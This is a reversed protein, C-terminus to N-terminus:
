RGKLNGLRLGTSRARSAEGRENLLYIGSSTGRYVNGDADAVVTVSGLTPITVTVSTPDGYAQWATILWENSATLKRAIVHETKDWTTFEYSPQESGSMYHDYPGPLLDGQRLFNELHSFLAHVRSLAEIQLLWHPPSSEDFSADFGGTPFEFYGANAGIMGATYLCKLFGTYRPIESAWATSEPNDNNHYGGNVWSYNLPKGLSICYGVGNLARMLINNTSSPTTGSNTWGTDFEGFDGGDYYHRFSPMTYNTVIVDSNWGWAAIGTWWEDGPWFRTLKNQENGTNYFYSLSVSPLYASVAESMFSLHYAKKDSAYRSYTIGLDGYSNTAVCRPDLAWAYKGRNAVDLGYEGGDILISIPVANNVNTLSGVWYDAIAQLYSDPAEPSVRKITGSVMDVHGNSLTLVVEGSANTCYFDDPIPTPFNRNVIVALKYRTPDSNVIQAMTYQHTGEETVKAAATPTCYDGFELAYGWNNALEINANTSLAWGWRTLLPLTHGAKFVPKTQAALYQHPKITAGNVRLSSVM